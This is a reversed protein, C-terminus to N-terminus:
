RGTLKFGSNKNVFAGRMVPLHLTQTPHPGGTARLHRWGTSAPHFPFVPGPMQQGDLGDAVLSHFGRGKEGHPDDVVQVVQQRDDGSREVQQRLFAALWIAPVHVIPAPGRGPCPFERPPEHRERATLPAPPRHRHVHHHGFRRPQHPDHRSTGPDVQVQGWM